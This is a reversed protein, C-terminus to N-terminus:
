SRRATETGRRSETTDSPTATPDATKSDFRWWWVRDSGRPPGVRAKRGSGIVLEATCDIPLDNWAASTRTTWSPRFESAGCRLRMKTPRIRVGGEEVIDALLAGVLPEPPDPPKGQPYVILLGEVPPPHDSSIVHAVTCHGPTVTVAAPHDPPISTDVVYEGPPVNRFLTWGGDGLVRDFRPTSSGSEFLFVQDFELLADYGDVGDLQVGVYGLDEELRPKQVGTDVFAVWVLMIQTM